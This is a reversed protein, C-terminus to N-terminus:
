TPMTPPDAPREPVSSGGGGAGGSGPETTRREVDLDGLVGRQEWSAVRALFARRVADRADARTRIRVRLVAHTAHLEEVGLVDPADTLLDRWQPDASLERAVAEISATVVALDSALPVAIDVTTAVPGQSLNAVRLIQGNPLYWVHGSEDRIRTVRLSVREVTGTASGLDVIDGVGYQDEAIM